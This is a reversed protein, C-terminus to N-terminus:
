GEYKVVAEGEVLVEDDQNTCVTELTYIPKDERVKKVTVTATVTDGIRTPAKFQLTQGLYLSGPGPLRTGLVTSILGAGLMGHAIRGGFPTGSAYTEDVHVPNMDGTIGAFLVVDAETITKTFSASQGIELAM